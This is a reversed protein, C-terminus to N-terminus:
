VEPPQQAREEEALHAATAEALRRRLLPALEPTKRLPDLEWFSLALVRWGSAALARDRLRTAGTCQWTNRTFRAPGDVQVALRLSGRPELALDISRMSDECLHHEKFRIRLGSRLALAVDQHTSSKFSTGAKLCTLWAARAEVLMGNPPLALALPAERSAISWVEHLVRLDIRDDGAGREGGLANLLRLWASPLAPCQYAQLAVLAWCTNALGQRTFSGMTAEARASFAAWWHSPPAADLVAHAWLVNVLAAPTASPMARSMAAAHADLWGDSPRHRLEALAYLLLSLEQAGMAALRRRADAVYGDLFAEDPIRGLRVLAWLVAVADEPLCSDLQEGACAELADLTTPAISAQLRVASRLINALEHPALASSTAYWACAGWRTATRQQTTDRRARAVESAAAWFGELWAAPPSVAWGAVGSLLHSLECGTCAPLLPLTARYFATVWGSPPRAQLGASAFAVQAYDKVNFCPLLGDSAAWFASLWAASPCVRLRAVAWLTQCLRQPGVAALTTSSQEELFSSVWSPTPRGLKALGVLQAVAEANLVQPPLTPLAQQPRSRRGAAAAADIVHTGGALKELSPEGASVSSAGGGSSQRSRSTYERASKQPAQALARCLCVRPAPRPAHLRPHM